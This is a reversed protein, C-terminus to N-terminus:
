SEFASRLAQSAEATARNAKDLIHPLGFFGHMVGNYRSITVPVGAEELKHGYEEGEDSLPDYEATIILASPLGSFNKALLPSALPNLRDEKPNTFYHNAAWLMDDKTPGGMQGTEKVSTLNTVPYILLQFILQPTGQDRAMQATVAALNGGSSDGGVAIRAADGSIEAVHDAVWQTATYCDRPAAPFKHEPALHYDVSVVVCGVGNTLRRCTNDHTDLNNYIWTGGHFFVLVPFPGHGEPTYIRLPIEGAPGPITRNEVHAVPPEGLLIAQAAMAQRVVEPTLTSLPPYGRAAMQDLYAQAQPDLPM